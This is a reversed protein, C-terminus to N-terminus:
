DKTLDKKSNGMVEMFDPEIVRAYVGLAISTLLGVSGAALFSVPLVTLVGRGLVYGLSLCVIIISLIFVDKAFQKISIYDM